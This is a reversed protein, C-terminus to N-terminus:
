KQNQRMAPQQPGSLSRLAQVTIALAAAAFALHGPTYLWILTDM